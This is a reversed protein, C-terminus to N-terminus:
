KPHTEEESEHEEEQDEFPPEIIPASRDKLFYLFGISLGMLVLSFKLDYGFEEKRVLIYPFRYSFFIVASFFILLLFGKILKLPTLPGIM